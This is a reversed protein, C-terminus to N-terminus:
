LSPPGHVYPAWSKSPQAEEGYARNGCGDNGHADRGRANISRSYERCQEATLRLRPIQGTIRPQQAAERCNVYFFGAPRLALPGCLSPLPRRMTAPESRHTVSLPQANIDGSKQSRRSADDCSVRPMLYAAWQEFAARREPLSIAKNYNGAVGAKAAGSNISSRRSWM